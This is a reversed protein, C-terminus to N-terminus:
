TNFLLDFSSLLLSLNGCMEELNAELQAEFPNNRRQERMQVHQEQGYSDERLRSVPHNNYKETPSKQKTTSQPAQSANPPSRIPLRNNNTNNTM